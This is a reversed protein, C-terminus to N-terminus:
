RMKQVMMAFKKKVMVYFYQDIKRGELIQKMEETPTGTSIFLKYQKYSKKIYGLVGPVYPAAIVKDIVLASFQNTM